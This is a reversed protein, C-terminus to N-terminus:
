KGMIILKQSFQGDDTIMRIIYSGSPLNTLAFEETFSGEERLSRDTLHKVIKGTEDFIDLAIHAAYPVYYSLTVSKGDSPNPYPVSLWLKSSHIVVPIQVSTKATKPYSVFAFVDGDIFGERNQTWVGAYVSDFADSMTHDGIFAPTSGTKEVVLPNFTSNLIQPQGEITDKLRVRAPATLINNPDAESSYFLVYAEGTKQDVSVWPDFCDSSTTNQETVGIIQPSSWNAGNNDSYSYYLDALDGEYDGSVVHLRGTRLDVDFSVYPFARFGQSGKLGTFGSNFGSTFFPYSKFFSSSISLAPETFTLGFDASVFLEQGLGSSDSCSVYIEGKKGTRCMQYDDSAGLFKPTTWTYGDNDSWAIYLGEKLFLSDASFFQDWVAYVRNYHSSAPSNDVTIYVGDPFGFDLGNTNIPTANTWVKGDSSTAISINGASDTGDNTIYAYYFTGGDNSTVSPEGYIKLKSNLPRPLRSSTWSLGKDSSSYALIGNANMDGSSTGIVILDKNKRNISVSPNDQNLATNSVNRVFSSDNPLTQATAWSTFTILLSTTIFFRKM